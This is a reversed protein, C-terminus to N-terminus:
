EKDKSSKSFVRVFDVGMEVEEESETWVRVTGGEDDTTGRIQEGTVKNTIVYPVNKLIEGSESKLVFKEDFTGVIPSGNFKYSIEKAGLVWHEPAYVKVPKPSGIEVGEKDIKIYSGNSTLIIEKDAVIEINNKASILKLVQEAIIEIDDSQAQIQIKGRATFLKIGLNQVLVRLGQAINTLLNKASAISLTGQTTLTTNKQSAININNQSSLITSDKSSLLLQASSLEPHIQSNDEDDLESEHLEDKIIDNGMLDDLDQKFSEEVDIDLSSENVDHSASLKLFSKHIQHSVMLSESSEGVDKV